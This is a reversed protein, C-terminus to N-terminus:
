DSIPALEGNLWQLYDAAGAVIPLAIIEPVQYSHHAQVTAMLENMLRRATKIVLLTEAQEDIKGQWWFYSRITPVLNVCAALRKEVIQKALEAGETENAATVLVVVNGNANEM